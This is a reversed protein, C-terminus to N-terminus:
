LGTLPVERKKNVDVGKERWKARPGARVTQLEKRTKRAQLGFIKWFVLHLM